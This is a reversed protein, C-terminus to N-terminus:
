CALMELATEDESMTRVTKVGSKMQGMQVNVSAMVVTFIGSSLAEMPVSSCGRKLLELSFQPFFAKSYSKGKM